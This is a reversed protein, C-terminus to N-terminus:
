NFTRHELKLALMREFHERTRGFRPTQIKAPALILRQM